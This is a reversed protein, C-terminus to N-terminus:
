WPYKSDMPNLGIDWTYEPWIWKGGTYYKIDMYAVRGDVFVINNPCKRGPNKSDDHYSVPYPWGGLLNDIVYTNWPGWMMAIIAPFEYVMICKSPNVVSGIQMNGSGRVWPVNGGLTTYYGATWSSDM